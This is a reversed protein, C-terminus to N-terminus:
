APLHYLNNLISRYIHSAGLWVFPSSAQLSVALDLSVLNIHISRRSLRCHKQDVEDPIDRSLDLEGLIRAHLQEAQIM